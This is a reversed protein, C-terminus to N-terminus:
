SYERLRPGVGALVLLLASGLLVAAVGPWATLDDEAAAAHASFAATDGAASQDLHLAFDYYAFAVDDRAVGTLRLAAENVDGGGAVSRLTGDAALYAAFRQRVTDSGPSTDAALLRRVQDADSTFAAGLLPRYDEDVVWRSQRAEADAAAVSAQALGAYPTYGRTVADQVAAGSGAMASTTGVLLALVAATGALLPLNLVRRHRVALDRQWWLLVLVAAAGVLGLLAAYRLAAGRAADRDHGVQEDAQALLAKVQPLLTSQLLSDAQAYTDVAVPLPHGVVPQAQTGVAYEETGTWADYLALSDLLGQVDTPGAPGASAALRALARHAARQDAQATLSALVGDDVLVPGAGPDGSPVASYGVVLSKARQADLDSLAQMLQAAAVARPESVDVLEHVRASTDSFGVLALALLAAVLLMAAAAQARLRLVPGGSRPLRIGPRGATPGSPPDLDPRPTASPAAPPQLIATM